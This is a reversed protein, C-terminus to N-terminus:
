KGESLAMKVQRTLPFKGDNCFRGTFDDYDLAWLTVGRLKYRQFLRDIKYKLSLPNDYAVWLKGKSAYAAETESNYWETSHTWKRSCIEYYALIGTKRTYNGAEGPGTTPADLEYDNESKLTFSRGYLAFGINLKSAPMGADLWAEISEVVTPTKGILLLMRSLLSTLIAFFLQLCM